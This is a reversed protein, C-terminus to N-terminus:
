LQGAIMRAPGPLVTKPTLTLELGFDQNVVAQQRGRHEAVFHGWFAHRRQGAIM